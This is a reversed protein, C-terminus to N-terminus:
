LRAVARALNGRAAADLRAHFADSLFIRPRALLGALFAKRGARYAEPPVAAYERAIAADYADFAAPAAGLIAMDCDLLLAADRDVDGPALAGHRATLEILQAVREGSVPLGASRAWAASRAENDRAGPVYIADHFAIAVYVEAPQHWGLEDAVRDYEALVEAVHAATHYARHPEGYAAELARVLPAPLALPQHRCSLM